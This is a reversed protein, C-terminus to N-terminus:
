QAVVTVPTGLKGYQYESAGGEPWVLAASMTAETIVADSSSLVKMSYLDYWGYRGSSTGVTIYVTVYSQTSGSLTLISSTDTRRSFSYGIDAFERITVLDGGGKSLFPAAASIPFDSDNTRSYSGDIIRFYYTASDGAGIGGLWDVSVKNGILVNKDFVCFSTAWGLNTGGGSYGQLVSGSPKSITVGANYSGHRRSEKINLGFTPQIYDYHTATVNTYAIPSKSGDDAESLIHINQSSLLTIEYAGASVSEVKDVVDTDANIVYVTCDDSATGSIKYAM